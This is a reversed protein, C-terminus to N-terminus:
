KKAELLRVRDGDRIDMGQVVIVQDAESLGEVLEFKEEDSLGLKVAKKKALGGEFAYVFTEGGREVLCNRPLLLVNTHRETTINVTVYSGAFMNVPKEKLKLEVQWSRNAPNAAPAIHTITAEYSKMGEVPDRFDVKVSHGIKVFALDKEILNAVVKIDGPKILTAIPVGPMVYQGKSVMLAAVEGSIPSEVYFRTFEFGPEDRDIVAVTSGVGIRSGLSVPIAVIKGPVKSFVQVSANSIVDGNRVISDEIDGRQPKVVEVPTAATEFDAANKQKEGIANFVRFFIFVCGILVVLITLFLAIRRGRSV